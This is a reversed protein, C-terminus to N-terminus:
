STHRPSFAAGDALVGARMSTRASQQVHMSNYSADLLGVPHALFAVLFTLSSAMISTSTYLLVSVIGLIPYDARLARDHVRSLRALVALRLRFVLRDTLRDSGFLISNLLLSDIPDRDFDILFVRSLALLIFLVYLCVETM